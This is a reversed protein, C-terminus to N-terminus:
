RRQMTHNKRDVLIAKQLERASYKKDVFVEKMTDPNIGTYYMCTAHTLPTPTFIQVQEPNLKLKTTAFKKLERM